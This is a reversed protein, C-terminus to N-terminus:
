LGQGAKYEVEVCAIRAKGAAKDAKERSYYGYTTEDHPYVNIYLMKKEPVIRFKFWDNVDDLDGLKGEFTTWDEKDKCAWEIQKGDLYARIIADNKHM